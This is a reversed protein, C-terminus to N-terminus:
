EKVAKVGHLYFDFFAQSEKGRQSERTNKSRWQALKQKLDSTMVPHKAALNNTEGADAQIDFLYDRGYATIFKWKGNRIASQGRWKWYLTSHPPTDQEGTLYPMINVGDFEAPPELGALAMATAAVDLTIVPHKYEIGAPLTNKWYAIFPVRFGGETVMGKEGNLPDNLSGDWGPGIGPADEKNMKLPAGNDSIFFILTNEEIGYERLTKMVSGVGDDMASIMALAKRRREPMEGPFRELYKETADLPVHPARYACYFFFPQQHHRKIFAKTAAANADLHYMIEPPTGPKVKKGQLNYNTWGIKSTYYVDDFGHTTIKGPPGLHWKGTMGTTYGAAKLREAITLCRDFGDMADNNQEVGLKNQYQGSLLGTRSPVCQAATTYGELMRVGGAALKDIHPTKLDKLVGQCGLDAYGHDDSYFVIINPKSFVPTCPLFLGLTILTLHRFTRM